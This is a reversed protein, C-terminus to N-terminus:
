FVYLKQQYIYDKVPDPIVTKDKTQRYITSSIEPAEMQAIEYTAGLTKLKGLDKRNLPHGPRPIILLTVAQFLEQARYWQPIQQVLDSGIVLSYDADEGWIKQAKELSNLSRRDSLERYVRVNPQALNLSHIVLELMAMRHELPTQNDKFPNDSAWVAVQDYHDSLWQLISQHAATPPDASTGFLAIKM